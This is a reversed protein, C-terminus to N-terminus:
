RLLLEIHCQGANSFGCKPCYFGGNVFGKRDVTESKDIWFILGERKCNDCRTIQWARIAQPFIAKVQALALRDQINKSM